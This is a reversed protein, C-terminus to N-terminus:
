KRRGSRSRSRSKKRSSSGSSVKSNSSRQQSASKSSGNDKQSSSGGKSAEPLYTSHGSLKTKISGADDASFAAKNLAETLCKKFGTKATNFTEQNKGKGRYTGGNKELTDLIKDGERITLIISSAVVDALPYNKTKAWSPLRSKLLSDMAKRCRTEELRILLGSIKKEGLKQKFGSGEQADKLLNALGSTMRSTIMRPLVKLDSEKIPSAASSASSSRSRRSQAFLSETLFLFAVFCAVATYFSRFGEGKKGQPQKIGM